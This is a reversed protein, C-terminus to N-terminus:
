KSDILLYVFLLYTLQHAFQDAGFERWYRPNTIDKCGFRVKSWDIHYHIVLDILGCLLIMVPSISIFPTLILLVALTGVVHDITHSFGVPDWYIGKKVTQAYTQVYFDAYWHKIQLAALIILTDM